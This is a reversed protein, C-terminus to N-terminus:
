GYRTTSTEKALAEADLTQQSNISLARSIRLNWFRPVSPAVSAVDMRRFLVQGLPALVFVASLSIFLRKTIIIPCRPLHGIDSLFM